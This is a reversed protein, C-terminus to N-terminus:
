IKIYGVFKSQKIGLIGIIITIFKLSESTNKPFLLRHFVAGAGVGVREKRQFYRGIVKFIGELQQKIM